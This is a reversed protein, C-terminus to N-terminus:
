QMVLNINETTVAIEDNIYNILVDYNIKPQWLGLTTDFRDKLLNLDVLGLSINLECKILFSITFIINDITDKEAQNSVEEDTFDFDEENSIIFKIIRELIKSSYINPLFFDLKKYETFSEIIGLIISKKVINFSKEGTLEIYDSFKTFPRMLNKCLDDISETYNNNVFLKSYINVLVRWYVDSSNVLESVTLALSKYDANMNSKRTDYDQSSIFSGELTGCRSDIQGIMTNAKNVADNINEIGYFYIEIILDYIERLDIDCNILDKIEPSYNSYLFKALMQKIECVQEYENKPSLHDKMIGLQTDVIKLEEFISKMINKYFDAGIIYSYNKYFLMHEIEGWLNHALSKIQIEVNISAGEPMIWKSAIRYIPRGNKQEEPQKSVLNIALFSKTKDIDPITLFDGGMVEIFIKNIENFLLDEEEDLLCILRLGILDPLDNIFDEDGIYKEFYRKRIIKERLSKTGKVRGNLLVNKIQIKNLFNEIIFANISNMISELEDKRGLLRKESKDIFNELVENLM